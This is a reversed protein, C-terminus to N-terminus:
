LLDRRRPDRRPDRTPVRREHRDLGGPDLGQPRRARRLVGAPHRQQPGSPVVRDRRLSPRRGLDPLPPPPPLLDRRRRHLGPGGPPARRAARRDRARRDARGHGLRGAATGHDADQGDAPGALRRRGRLRAHAGRGPAGVAGAGDARRPRPLAVAAARVRDRLPQRGSGSAALAQRPPRPVRARPRDPRVGRLRAPPSALARDCRRPASASMSSPHGPLRLLRKFATTVRV